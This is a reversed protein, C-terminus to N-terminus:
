LFLSWFPHILSLLSLVLFVLFWNYDRKNVSVLSLFLCVASAILWAYLNM